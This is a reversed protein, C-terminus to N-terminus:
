QEKRKTTTNTNLLLNCNEKNQKIWYDITEIGTNIWNWYSQCWLVGLRYVNWLTENTVWMSPKYYCIQTRGDSAQLTHCDHSPADLPNGRRDYLMRDVFVPPPAYPFLGLYIQLTFQHEGTYLYLRENNDSIEIWKPNILRRLVELEFEIRERNM